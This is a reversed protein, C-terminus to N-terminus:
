NVEESKIAMSSLDDDEEEEVDDEENENDESADIDEQLEHRSSILTNWIRSKTVDTPKHGIEFVDISWCTRTQSVM